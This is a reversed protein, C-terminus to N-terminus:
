EVSHFSQIHIISNRSVPTPKIPADTHIYNITKLATKNTIYRIHLLCPVYVIRKNWEQNGNKQEKNICHTKTTIDVSIATYRRGAFWVMTDPEVLKVEWLSAAGDSGSPTQIAPATATMARSRRATERIELPFFTRPRTTGETHTSYHSYFLFSDDSITIRPPSSTAFREVSISIPGRGM